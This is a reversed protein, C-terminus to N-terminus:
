ASLIQLAQEMKQPMEFVKCWAPDYAVYNRKVCAEVQWYMSSSCYWLLAVPSQCCRPWRHTKVGLTFLVVTIKPLCTFHSFTM